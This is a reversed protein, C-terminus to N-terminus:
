DDGLVLAAAGLLGADDLESRVLQVTRRATPLSRRAVVDAAAGLFLDGLATVPGGLVVKEPNLATVLNAILLGLHSGAEHLIAFAKPDGARAAAALGRPETAIGAAAALRTLGSGSAWTEACGAGGCTCRPGDAVLVVHGLEGAANATGRVLRDRVVIGGGLGTGLVLVVFDSADRGAGFRLEAVAACHGDNDVATRLGTSARLLAALPVNSWGPLLATADLVVGREADIRGGTSVGIGAVAREGAVPRLEAVGARMAAVIAEPTRPTAVERRAVIAGAGDVLATRLRTGGLDIAFALQETEARPTLFAPPVYSGTVFRAIDAYLAREAADAHTRMTPFTDMGLFWACAAKRMYGHTVGGDLYERFRAHREAGVAIPEDLQLYYEMEIGAGRAKAARAAKPVTKGNRYFMYNPQLFVADFYYSAHDDLQHVNFRSWFPIWLLALGQDRLFPRLEKLVWHDDVDWSYRLSEYMWYVGLLNVHRLALATVRRVLEGVYWRVAALRQRSARDLDQDAVSFDVPKGDLTGWARQSLHPYPIMVVANRKTPPATGIQGAALAVAADFEALATTYHDLLADWDGRDSPTPSCWAFFDGEGSMSTGRNIDACFHRGNAAQPSLFLLSDFLWHDARGAADLHAVFPVLDAAHWPTGPNRYLLALHRLHGLDARDPALYPM